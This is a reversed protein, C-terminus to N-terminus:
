KAKYLIGDYIQPLHEVSRFRDKYIAAINTDYVYVGSSDYGITWSHASNQGELTGPAISVNLLSLEPAMIKADISVANSSVDEIFEIDVLDRFTRIVASNSRQHFDILLKYGSQFHKATESYVAMTYREINDQSPIHTSYTECFAAFIEQWGAGSFASVCVSYNMLICSELTQSFRINDFRESNFM